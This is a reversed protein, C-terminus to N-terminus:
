GLYSPHAARVLQLSGEFKKNQFGQQSPRVMPESDSEMDLFDGPAQQIDLITGKIGGKM